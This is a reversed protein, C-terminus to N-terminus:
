SPKYTVLDKTSKKVRIPPTFSKQLAPPNERDQPQRKTTPLPINGTYQQSSKTREKRQNIYEAQKDMFFLFLFMVIFTAQPHHM